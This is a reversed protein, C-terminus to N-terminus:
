ASKRHMGTGRENWNRWIKGLNLLSVLVFGAAVAVATLALAPSEYVLGVVAIGLGLVAVLGRKIWRFVFSDFRRFFRSVMLLLGAAVLIWLLWWPVDEGLPIIRIITQSDGNVQMGQLRVTVNTGSDFNQIEGMQGANLTLGGNEDVVIQGLARNGIVRLKHIGPPLLSMAMDGGLSARGDAGVVATAFVIPSSTMALYVTSGPKYTDVTVNFNIWDTASESSIQTLLQPQELGITEFVHLDLPSIEAIGIGNTNPNSTSNVEGVKVFSNSSSSQVIASKIDAVNIRSTSSVAIVAATKAGIVDFDVSAGKTFGGIKESAAQSITREAQGNSPISSSQTVTAPAPGILSTTVPGTAITISPVPISNEANVAVTVADTEAADYFDTSDSTGSVVCRGIGMATLTNGSIACYLGGSVVRFTGSSVPGNFGLTTTGKVRLSTAGLRLSVRPTNKVSRLSVTASAGAYHTSELGLAEVVCTGASLMEVRGDNVSCTGASLSNWRIETENDTSAASLQRSSGVNTTGAGSIRVSRGARAVAVHFSVTSAATFQANGPQTVEIDCEGFGLATLVDGQLDCVEPHNLLRYQLALGSTTSALVQVRSGYTLNVTSSANINQAGRTNSTVVLGSPQVLIYKTRVGPAGGLQVQSGSSLTVIGNADATGSLQSLDFSLSDGGVLGAFSGGSFTLAGSTPDKTVQIGNVRLEKAAVTITRTVQSAANYANDGSQDAVIHATGPGVIQVRGNVIKAVTEDDSHVSAGLGSSASVTLSQEADGYTATSPATVSLNQNYKAGWSWAVSPSALSYRGRTSGTLAPSSALSVFGSADDPSGSLHTLDVDVDDGTVKGSLSGGSYSLANSLRDRVAIVGTLNLTKPNIVVTTNVQPAANYVFGGSQTAVIHATGPGVVRIRGNVIKFVSEDDSVYDVPLASDASATVNQDNDGYSFATGTTVTIHQDYKDGDVATLGSPQVLDYRDRDAGQLAAVAGSALTVHGSGDATGALASIDVDVDDAGVKNTVGAARFTLAGTLRDKTVTLSNVMVQRKGVSITQSSSASQYNADGTQSAVLHATGPGVVRIKGNVVKFVSEDDSVSNVILGSGSPADTSAQFDADSVGYSFSAGATLTINQARKSISVSPTDDLVLEYLAAAAGTLTIGSLSVTHTGVASSGIVGTSSSYSVAVDDGAIPQAGVFAASAHDIDVSSVGDSWQRGVASLGALHLVKKAVTITVTRTTAANYNTDGPQEATIVATGPGVIHLKGNVITAVSTDSSSTSVSVGSADTSATIAEDVDGYQASQHAVSLTVNQNAKQVDLDVAVQSSGTSNQCRVQVTNRSTTATPTGSIAGTRTSFNLGAPLTGTLACSSYTGGHNKLSYPSAVLSNYTFSLSKTTSVDDDITLSPAALTAAITVSTTVATAANYSSDGPQSASLTCTGAAVAHLKGAVVTCISSTTSGVTVALGSSASTYLAQDPEGTALTTPAKTWLVTQSAKTVTFTVTSTGSYNPDTVSATAQYTGVAMPIEIGGDAASVYSLSYSLGAVATTVTPELDAGTFVQTLSSLTVSTTAKAITLTSTASGSYNASSYIAQTTYTGANIPATSSGDYTTAWTGGTIGGGVTATVTKSSGTYTTTAANLTVIADAKRIILTGTATGQFYTDSITAVVTYTGANTPTVSTPTGTGNLSYSYSVSAVTDRIPINNVDTYLDHTDVATRVGHTFTDYVADLTTLDFTVDADGKAVSLTITLGASNGGANTATIVFNTASLVDQPIGSIEGTNADFSLGAPLTATQGGATKLLFGNANVSSGANSIGLPIGADVNVKLVVTSHAASLAPAVISTTVTFSRSVTTAANTAGDGTQAASVTCTGTTLATVTNGSVSCVSSTSATYAIALGRSSVANLPQTSNIVLGSLVPFDITQSHKAITITFTSGASSGSPGIGIVTYTASSQTTTPTGSITGNRTDFILGAPLAPSVTYLSVATGGTSTTYPSGVDDGVYFSFTNSSLTISPPGTVTFMVTIPSAAAFTTDGAQTAKIACTGGTAGLTIVFGTVSCVSTSAQGTVSNVAQLTVGLGSSAAPAVTLVAGANQTGPNVFTISQTQRAVNLTFTVPASTGATNTATISYSTSVPTSTTITGSTILGSASDFNFGDPSPSIAYSSATGGLNALTYPSFVHLGIEFTASPTDISLVPKSLSSYVTFSRTVSTAALYAANGPQSAVLTCTGDSQVEVTPYVTSAVTSYVISCVDASAPAVTYSVPLGSEAVATLTQANDGFVMANPQDFRLSQPKQLVNFTYAVSNSTGAPNTATIYYTSSASGAEPTGILVGTKTDFAMGDPLVPSIAFSTASSGSVTLTYPTPILSGATFTNTLPAIALQSKGIVQFSRVVPTAAGYLASGLQSATLTCTGAAIYTITFGSVACVSTASSTLSVTLPVIKTITGTSASYSKSSYKPPTYEIYSGNTDSSVASVRLNTGNYTRSTSSYNTVVITVLDGVAFTSTGSFYVRALNSAMSRGSITTLTQGLGDTSPSLTSKGLSLQVDTPQAFTITQPRGVVELSIPTSGSLNMSSGNSSTAKLQVTARAAASTPTGTLEGTTGAAIGVPTASLSYTTYATCATPVGNSFSAGPAGANVVKYPPPNTSLATGTVFATVDTLYNFTSPSTSLYNGTVVIPIAPMTWAPTGSNSTSPCSNASPVTSTVKFVSFSRVVASAAAYGNTAASNATVSCTGNASVSSAVLIPVNYVGVSPSLASGPTCPGSTTFTIAGGSTASAYVNQTSSGSSPVAMGWPQMLTIANARLGVSLVFGATSSGGAGTATITYATPASDANPTGSILGTSSSFTAWSPLSPSITYGNSSVAGGSNSVTYSANSSGIAVGNALNVSTTSLTINPALLGANASPGSDAAGASNVATAIVRYAKGATLGTITCTAGAGSACTVPGITETGDTSVARATYSAPTGGVTPATFTFGVQLSSATPSSTIVPIGPSGPPLVAGGVTIDFQLTSALSFFAPDSSKVDFASVQAQLTAVTGSPPQIRLTVTAATTKGVPPSASLNKNVLTVWGPLSNTAFDLTQATDVDTATLIVDTASGNPSAINISQTSPSASLVPRNNTTNSFALLVDRTMYQGAADTARTKFAYYIPATDTGGSFATAYNESGVCLSSSIRLIGTSLNFDSCPIRGAGYAALTSGQDTVLSYTVSGGAAVTPSPAAGLGGALANLNATFYNGATADYTVNTMYGSNYVPAKARQTGNIRIRSEVQITQNTSNKIGAIRNGATQSFVYDFDTSFAACSVDIVFTSTDISFLPQSTTDISTSGTTSQGTCTKVVSTAGSTRDVRTITPFTFYTNAGTWTKAQLLVSTMTVSKSAPDYVIEGLAGRLHTAYAPTLVGFILALSAITAAIIRTPKWTPWVARFFTSQRLV